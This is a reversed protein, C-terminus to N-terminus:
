TGAVPWNRAMLQVRDLDYGAILLRIAGRVADANAARAVLMGRVGEDLPYHFGTVADGEAGFRPDCVFVVAM